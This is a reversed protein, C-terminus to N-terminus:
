LSLMLKEELVERDDLQESGRPRDKLYADIDPTNWSRLRGGDFSHAGAGLGLYPERAWYASNHRSARGPLAYNSVEYQLYGAGGLREQLMSYQRRCRGDDEDAHRGMMQYCSIHEPRLALSRAVSDEWQDDALGNFGFILDLSLNDFGAERLQLFAAVAGEATHRRRMWRLHGDCFAQVGISIRNAGMARYADAKEPTVDDPNVELTFEEFGDIGFADRVADAVRQLQEPPLLSPTGGGFYLTTPPFGQLEDKRESLEKLIAEVYPKWDKRVRAYFDCYICKSACFPFHVYLGAM